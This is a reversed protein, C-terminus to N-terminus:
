LHNLFACRCTMAARWHSLFARRQAGIACFHAGTRATTRLIVQLGANEAGL